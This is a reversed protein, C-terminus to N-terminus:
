EPKWMEWVHGKHGTVLLKEQEAFEDVAKDVGPFRGHYDHGCFLGGRMVLPWWAALDARVKEYSHDADIFVFGVKEQCCKLINAALLSDAKIANWRPWFEAVKGMAINFDTYGRSANKSATDWHDVLLLNLKQFRKLLHESLHGQRVGVEVGWRGKQGLRAILTSVSRFYNWGM